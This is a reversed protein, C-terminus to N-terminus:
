RLAGSQFDDNAIVQRLHLKEPTAQNNQNQPRVERPHARELRWAFLSLTLTEREPHSCHTYDGIEKHGLRNM